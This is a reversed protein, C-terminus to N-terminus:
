LLMVLSVAGVLGAVLLVDDGAAQIGAPGPIGPLFFGASLPIDVPVGVRGAVYQAYAAPQNNDAAPAYGSYVGPKGGFFEFLSLGRSINLEVQRVLARWGDGATDFQAYGDVVPATGWSRLNGPNNNRAALSGPQYYGEYTAIAQAISDTLSM